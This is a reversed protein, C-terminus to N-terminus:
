LVASLGIALLGTLGYNYASNKLTWPMNKQQMAGIQNKIIPYNQSHTADLHYCQGKENYGQFDDTRLQEVLALQSEAQNVFFTRSAMYPLDVHSFENLRCSFESPRITYNNGRTFLSRSLESNSAM